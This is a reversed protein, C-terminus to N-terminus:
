NTRSQDNKEKAKAAKDLIRATKKLDLDWTDGIPPQPKKAYRVQIEDWTMGDTGQTITVGINNLLDRIEDSIDYDKAVRHKQHLKVM